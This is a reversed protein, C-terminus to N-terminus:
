KNKLYNYDDQMEIINKASRMDNKDVVATFKTNRLERIAERNEILLEMMLDDKTSTFKMTTFDYADGFKELCKSIFHLRRIALPTASTLTGNKNLFKSFDTTSIQERLKNNNL